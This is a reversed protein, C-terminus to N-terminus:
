LNKLISMKALLKIVYVDCAIDALNVSFDFDRLESGGHAIGCRNVNYFYKGVDGREKLRIIRDKIKSKFIDYLNINSKKQGLCKVSAKLTGFNFNELDDLNDNIWKKANNETITELVRYYHLYESFPDSQRLAQAYLSLEKKRKGYKLSYDLYIIEEEDNEKRGIELFYIGNVGGLKLQSIEEMLSVPDMEYSHEKFPNFLNINDDEFLWFLSEHEFSICNMYFLANEFSPHEEDQRPIIYFRGGEYGNSQELFYKKDILVSSCMCDQLFLSPICAFYKVNKIEKKKNM